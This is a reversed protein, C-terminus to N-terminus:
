PHHQQVKVGLRCARALRRASILVAVRAQTRSTPAFLMTLDGKAVEGYRTNRERAMLIAVGSSM